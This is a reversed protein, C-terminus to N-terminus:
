YSIGEVKNSFDLLELKRAHEDFKKKFTKGKSEIYDGAMKLGKDYEPNNIIFFALDKENMTKFITLSNTELYKSDENKFVSILNNVSEPYDTIRDSM